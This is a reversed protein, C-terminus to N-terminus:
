QTQTKPLGLRHPCPSQSLRCSRPLTYHAHARTDQVGLAPGPVSSPLRYRSCSPRAAVSRAGARGRAPGERGPTCPPAPLRPEHERPAARPRSHGGGWGRQFRARFSSSPWHGARPRFPLALPRGRSREWTNAAGQNQAKFIPSFLIGLICTFVRLFCNEEDM